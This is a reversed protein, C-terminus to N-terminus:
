QDDETVSRAGKQRRHGPFLELAFLSCTSVWVDARRANMCKGRTRSAVLVCKYM